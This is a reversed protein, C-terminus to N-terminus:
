GPPLTMQVFSHLTQAMEVILRASMRRDPLSYTSLSLHHLGIIQTSLVRMVDDVQDVIASDRVRADTREELVFESVRREFPENDDM